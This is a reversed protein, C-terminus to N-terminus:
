DGDYEQLAQVLLGNAVANLPDSASRIESVEIPFRKRKKDFLKTFFEVFGTPKSTGGSIILPIAKPLAFKGEISKFQLAIQDIVYEILNKYYFALAEQDRGQPNNLDIGKEKLACIRAQTSGISKAAGSDIWDGGRGVSFTLGEITNMALACNHVFVGCSLAFNHHEDVTLDYVPVSVGLNEVRVVKHNHPADLARAYRRKAAESQRSRMLAAKEHGYVEEYTKGRTRKGTTAGGLRGSDTLTKRGEDSDMWARHISAVDSGRIEEITKGKHLIATKNGNVKCNHVFKSRISPQQLTTQQKSRIDQAKDVGYIAELTKGKRRATIGDSLANHLRKHESNRMVQLNEPRNDLGQFNVHHVVERDPDGDLPRHILAEALLYHEGVWKGTRNDKIQRYRRSSSGKHSQVHTYLPMLSTEPALDGAALFTGDRLMVRHDRTCDFYSGDDLHVRIVPQVGTQRPHHALGPVIQGEPTSSYVWFTEGAAGNALEALTKKSGDLLPVETDGSLCNTMGSGFSLGIASFNDRAAEAFILGMAENGATPTYGCESVIREFIGRHYVVDRGPIDIPAAPVSFYCHEGEESPEGLVNRVLLGLVELSDTETSSVLGGSLPRRAERGFINATDLAADGLILIEDGRDVYSVGSLKLMKKSEPPLDLFADRMRRTEIGKDTKRASVLNMTGVDLGVGLHKAMDEQSKKPKAPM